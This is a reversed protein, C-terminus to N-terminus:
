EDGLIEKILDEKGWEYESSVSKKRNRLEAEFDEKWKMIWQFGLAKNSYDLKSDMPFNKLTNKM